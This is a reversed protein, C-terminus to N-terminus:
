SISPNEMLIGWMVIRSLGCVVSLYSGQRLASCAFGEGAIKLFDLGNTTSSGSKRSDGCGGDHSEVLARARVGRGVVLLDYLIDGVLLLLGQDVVVLLLDAEVVAHVLQFMRHGSPLHLIHLGLKRRRRRRQLVLSRQLRLKRTVIIIARQKMM